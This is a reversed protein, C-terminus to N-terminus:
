QVVDTASQAEDAAIGANALRARRISLYALSGVTGLVLYPMSMMFLISYAYGAALAKGQPDNQALGDKCTPCAAAVSAMLLVLAVVLAAIVWRVVVPEFYHYSAKMECRWRVDLSADM